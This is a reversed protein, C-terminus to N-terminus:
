VFLDKVILILLPSTRQLLHHEETLLYYSPALAILSRQFPALFYPHRVAIM